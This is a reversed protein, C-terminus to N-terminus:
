GPDAQSRNLREIMRAWSKKKWDEQEENSMALWLRDTESEVKPDNCLSRDKDSRLEALRENRFKFYGRSARLRRQPQIQTAASANSVADCSFSAQETRLSTVPAAPSREGREVEEEFTSPVTDAASSAGSQCNNTEAM